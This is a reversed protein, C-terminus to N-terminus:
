RRRRGAHRTPSCSRSRAFARMGWRWCKYSMEIQFAYGDSRVEDLRVSECRAGGSASSVARRTACRAARHDPAHVRQRLVVPHAPELPWNVVTVGNSTARASCSTPAGPHADLFEVSRTRPRALLRRGDRVRARRGPRARLPLGDRYASGLGLKGARRLLHIRPERQTVRADVLDGTGDPSDTTSSWCTSNTRSCWCASCCRRDINDRENYTLVIVLKEVRVGRTAAGPPHAVAVPLRRAAADSVFGVGFLALM